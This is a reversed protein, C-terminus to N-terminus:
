LHAIVQQYSFSTAELLSDFPCLLLMVLEPSLKISSLLFQIISFILYM